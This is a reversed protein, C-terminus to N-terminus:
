RLLSQLPDLSVSLDLFLELFPTRGPKTHTAGMKCRPYLDLGGCFFYIATKFHDKNRYGCARRKIAMIKSNLGEAVANTIRHRCFTVINELHELLMGAVKKMPELRSRRAWECWRKLFRKAWGPSLYEWLGSLSEKMAWAKATKLNAAKLSEFTPRHKEPLNEEKYLWLYKTGKLRDDKGDMLEKHERRRVKDVAEGAHKMIHFRDFVIKDGADPLLKRTAMIYPPWMDMAVARIAELQERKLGQYYEELSATKRKEAVHEVTARSLDCVVTMYSHGKRFAKEDVGLYHISRQEKRSLGRRVARQMVGWAEDWTLGLLRRAGEITACEGIVNIAWREMLLTFRSKPEALARQGPGGWAGPVGGTSYPCPSLNQVPLYGSAAM